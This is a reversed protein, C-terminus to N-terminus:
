IPNLLVTFENFFQPKSLFEYFVLSDKLHTAEDFSPPVNDLRSLSYLNVGYLILAILIIVCYIRTVKIDKLVQTEIHM